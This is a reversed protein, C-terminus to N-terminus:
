KSLPDVLDGPQDTTRREAPPQMPASYGDLPRRLPRKGTAYRFVNIGLQFIWEYNTTQNQHWACGITWPAYIVVTRSVKDAALRRGEAALTNAPLDLGLVPRKRDAKLKFHSNYVAHGPALQRLESEPFVQKVLLRFGEDFPKAKCCNDALIVGGREAFERLKKRDEEAIAGPSKHGSLYLVPADLWEDVKGRVDVIQWRFRQEFTDEAYLVLNRLDRTHNCWDGPWKLKNVVFPARGKALFLVALSTEVAPNYGVTWSGDRQQHGLFYWAGERYWDHRGIQKLGTAVGIREIAYSYYASSPFPPGGYLGTLGGLGDLDAEVRTFARNIAADFPGPRGCDASREGDFVGEGAAGKAGLLDRLIYLSALGTATMTVSQSPLRYDEYRKVYPWGHTVSQTNIFHDAARRLAPEPIEVGRKGLEWLALVAFQTNSNDGSEYRDRWNRGVTIGRRGRENGRVHRPNTLWYTWMGDAAQWDVLRKLVQEMSRRHSRGRKDRPMKALVMAQLAVEYTHDTPTDFAYSLARRASPDGLPVGAELMALLALATQGVPYTMNFVRGKTGIRGDRSQISKLYKVGLAIRKQVDADGIKNPAILGPRDAALTPQAAEALRAAQPDARAAGPVSAVLLAAALCATLLGARRAPSRRGHRRRWPALRISGSCAHPM